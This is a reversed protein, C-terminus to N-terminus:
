AALGFHKTAAAIWIALPVKGGTAEDIKAAIDRGPFRTGAAYRSITAQKCGVAAALDAQREDKLYATLATAYANM